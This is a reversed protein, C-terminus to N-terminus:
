GRQLGVRAAGLLAARVLVVHVPMRQMVPELRGKATFRRMFGGRSLVPLIKAPIGGALYEGGTALIKLAFNGAEAGLISCFLEIAALCLPDPDAAVAGGVIVRTRDPASALMAGLEPSEAVTGRARLYDYLPPIGIGSCVREVSVHGFAPRLFELLDSEIEDNPAFDAHGGESPHARYRQGSWTLFGEGLGTGPAVVAIAGKDVPEGRNLQHLSTSSLGLIGTAIAEVDNMLHVSRVGMQDGLEREDISWRLNTITARGAVVPGAVAFCARDIEHTSKARFEAVIDALSGYHQSPYESRVIPQDPGTEASFLGLDVKTGGVDGALLM